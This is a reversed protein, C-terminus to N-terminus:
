GPTTAVTPPVPTDTPPPVPTDTPPPTPTDTPPPAPTDTPPPAPTDTPPPAPTDTPPPAPTDTPVQTFTDTPGPTFTDTPGPTFTDTPVQTFTDTPVQTFTDTPGPTDTATPPVPTNSPTPTPSSINFSQSVSVAAIYNSNGIQSATVTCSGAGTLHIWSSSHTCNGSTSFTIGLGSDATATVQFDPDVGYIKNGLPNFTITQPAKNITDTLLGGTNNYNGTSDIFIWSDSYIGANTHRTLNLNLGNLPNGNIDNCYGTAYYENTDYTVNYAAISSCNPSAKFISFSQAVPTAPNYYANGDQSATVTCVGAGNLYILNNNNSCAGTTTFTVTLGSSATASVTFAPNGYTKTPVTGFTITQYALIPNPTHTPTRYRVETPTSTLSPTLSPTLTFGLTGTPTRTNHVLVPLTDTPAPSSTPSSNPAFLFSLSFLPMTDGPNALFMARFVFLAIIAVVIMPFIMWPIWGPLRGSARASPGRFGVPLENRSRGTYVPCNAYNAKLCFTLQYGSSPSAQRRSRSCINDATPYAASTTPDTKLRLFPCSPTAYEM